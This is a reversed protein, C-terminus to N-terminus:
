TRFDNAAVDLGTAVHAVFEGLSEVQDSTVLQAAELRAMLTERENVLRVISTELHKQRDALIEKAFTGVLYLDLLREMQTRVAPELGLAGLKAPSMSVSDRQIGPAGDAASM